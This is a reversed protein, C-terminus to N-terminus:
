GRNWSWTFSRLRDDMRKRDTVDYNVGVMRVPGRRDHLVKGKTVLWRVEGDPRVVRFEHELSGTREVAQQVAQRIRLRDDPHM